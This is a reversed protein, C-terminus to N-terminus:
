RTSRQIERRATGFVKGAGLYGYCLDLSIIDFEGPSLLDNANPVRLICTRV